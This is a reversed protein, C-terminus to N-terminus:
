EFIINHQPCIGLLGTRGYTKKGEVLVTGASPDLVGVLMNSCCMLVGTVWCGCALVRTVLCGWVLVEGLMWM